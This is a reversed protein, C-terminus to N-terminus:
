KVCTSYWGDAGQVVACTASTQGPIGLCTRPNSNFSSYGVGSSSAAGSLLEGRVHGKIGHQARYTASALAREYASNTAVTYTVVPAETYSVYVPTSEVVAAGSALCKCNACGCGCGEQTPVPAPASSATGSFCSTAKSGFCGTAQVSGTCSSQVSGSCSTGASQVKRLTGCGVVAKVTSRVPQAQVINQVVHGTKHVVNATARVTNRVPQFAQYSEGIACTGNICQAQSYSTLFLAAVLMLVTTQIRPNM